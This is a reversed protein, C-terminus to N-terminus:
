PDSRALLSTIKCSDVFAWRRGAHTGYLASGANFANRIENTQMYFHGGRQNSMGMERSTGMERSM